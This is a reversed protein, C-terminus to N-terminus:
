TWGGLKLARCLDPWTEAAAETTQYGSEAWIGARCVRLQRTTHALAWKEADRRARLERDDDISDASVQGLIGIAVDVASSAFVREEQTIEFAEGRWNADLYEALRDIEVDANIAEVKGPETPANWATFFTKRTRSLACGRPLGLADDLADWWSFCEDWDLVTSWAEVASLGVDCGVLAALSARTEKPPAAPTPEPANWAAFFAAFVTCDTPDGVARMLKHWNGGRGFHARAVGWADEATLGVDCGILAALSARTAKTPPAPDATPAPHFAIPTGTPRGCAIINPEDDPEDTASTPLPAAEDTAVDSASGPAPKTDCARRAENLPQGLRELKIEWERRKDTGAAGTPTHWYHENLERAADVVPRWQDLQAEREDIQKGMESAMESMASELEAARKEAAEYQARLTPVLASMAAARLEPNQEIAALHDAPTATRHSDWEQAYAHFIRTTGDADKFRITM